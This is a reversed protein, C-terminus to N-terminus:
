IQYVRAILSAESEGAVGVGIYSRGDLHTGMLQNPDFGINNLQEFNAITVHMSAILVPIKEKPGSFIVNTKGTKKYLWKM